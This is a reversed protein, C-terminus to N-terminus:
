IHTDPFVFMENAPVGHFESKGELKDLLIDLNFGKDDFASVYTKVQPMDALVNPSATSVLITPIEHVYWPMDLTGKTGPWYPREIAQGLGTINAVSLVLDYNDTLDAIASKGSYADKLIARIEDPTKGKIKDLQSEYRDAQYGRERLKEAVEDAPHGGAGEAMMAFPSPAAGIPVVLVRPYKETSMPLNEPQKNKVLAIARDAVEEAIKQHEPLAIKALAEEKPLLLENGPKKHLGLMAKLGLIRTLAEHLRKDSLKGSKWGEMMWQFDEDPDNFFLWLDCGAEIAMPLLDSRKGAGTLGVMHSADTVVVGNFGLKERLLNTNIEKSITAPLIDEDTMDPNFHKQYSPLAIHGTMISPLGADFLGKYLKGFSADWEETSLWNPAHSLHQDREDIGDGPWHKAAPAIGSEQIGKMYALSMELVMDTDEGWTRRSVIPNRWNKYIDVIPAFSWNCGVASAEIGSIRGLEYAYKADGTAGIKAEWGVYTGDTAAGNGGAETNAAILMPIKSNSQLINNQEWVEEATSPQYRVAGIHYTDLVSTLYEETRSAGMNVFLQGIKEEDTMNAITQEVWAVGDDDLNFPQAKLDVM